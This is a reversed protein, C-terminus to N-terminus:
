PAYFGFYMSQRHTKSNLKRGTFIEDKRSLNKVRQDGGKPRWMFWTRFPEPIGEKKLRKWEETQEDMHPDHYFDDAVVLGSAEYLARGDVTSEVFM